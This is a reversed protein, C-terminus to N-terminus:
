KTSCLRRKFEDHTRHRNEAIEKEPSEIYGAHILKTVLSKSMASLLELADKWHIPLDIVGEVEIPKILDATAKLHLKIDNM